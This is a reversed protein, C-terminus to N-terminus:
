FVIVRILSLTIVYLMRMTLSLFNASLHPRLFYGQRSPHFLSLCPLGQWAAQILDQPLNAAGVAKGHELHNVQVPGDTHQGQSTCPRERSQVLKLGVKVLSM